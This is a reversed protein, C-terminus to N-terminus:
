PRRRAGLQVSLEREGGELVTRATRPTRGPSEVVLRLEGAFTEIELPGDGLYASGVNWFPAPEGGALGTSWHVRSGEPLAEGDRDRVHLRLRAPGLSLEPEWRGSQGDVWVLTEFPLGDLALVHQGPRLDAQFTGAPSGPLPAAVVGRPDSRGERRAGLLDEIHILRVSLPQDGSAGTIRGSTPRAPGDSRLTRGDLILGHTRGGVVSVRREALAVDGGAVRLEVHWDGPDLLGMRHREAGAVLDGLPLHYGQGRADRLFVEHPRDRRDVHVLLELAALDTLPLSNLVLGPWRDSAPPFRPTRSDSHRSPLAIAALLLAGAIGIAIAAPRPSQLM